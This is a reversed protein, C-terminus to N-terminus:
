GNKRLLLETRGCAKCVIVMNGDDTFEFDCDKRGCKCSIKFNQSDFENRLQRM